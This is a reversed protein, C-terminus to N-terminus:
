SIVVLHFTRTFSLFFFVQRITSTVTGASWLTFSFSFSFLLVLVRCSFQFIHHLIFTVNLGRTIRAFPLTVLSNTSPTFSSQFDDLCCRSSYQSSVLLNPFVQQWEFERFLFVIIIHFSKDMNVLGKARAPYSM